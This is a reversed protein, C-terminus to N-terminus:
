ESGNMLLSAAAPFDQSLGRLILGSVKELGQSLANLEELTFSNLIEKLKEERLAEYRDILKKGEATLELSIARRDAQRFQRDILGLRVLKDVNKSVAPQSRGLASAIECVQQNDSYAVLRLLNFQSLHIDSDTVQRLYNEELVEQVLLSFIYGTHLFRLFEDPQTAANEPSNSIAQVSPDVRKPLLLQQITFGQDAIIRQVVDGISVIGILQDEELVPLHRVHKDAMLAMCVEINEDPTVHVVSATMMEGVSTSQSSRGQLIVKRAYDRESFIGVLKGDEVVPLAGIDRDAMLELAQYISARPSITWVENERTQLLQEVTTSM